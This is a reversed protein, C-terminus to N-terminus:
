LEQLSTKQGSPVFIFASRHLIILVNNPDRQRTASPERVYPDTLRLELGARPLKHLHEDEM